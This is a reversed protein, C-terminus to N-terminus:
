GSLCSPRASSTVSVPRSRRSTSPMNATSTVIPSLRGDVWLFVLTDLPYVLFAHASILKRALHRSRAHNPVKARERARYCQRARISKSEAQRPVQRNPYTSHTPVESCRLVWTCNYPAQRLDHLDLAGFLNKSELGGAKGWSQTGSLEERRSKLGRVTKFKGEHERGRCQTARDTESALNAGHGTSCRWQKGCRWEATPSSLTGGIGRGGPWRVERRCGVYFLM